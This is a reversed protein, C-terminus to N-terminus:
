DIGYLLDDDLPPLHLVGPSQCAGQYDDWAAALRGVLEEGCRGSVENVEWRDDPKAFLEAHTTSQGGSSNLRLHWAPTRIAREHPGAMMCARDRATPPEGDILPLLSRGTMASFEDFGWWDLLTPALDHPQALVQTRATAGRGDPFRVLWPVQVLEGYLADDGPGIRRHEGLPFGRAGLLILLTDNTRGCEGLADLLAGICVDLLTVQGAYAQVIGLLEDPDYDQPLLKGPVASWVPPPPDEVAAYRNRMELPADWPGGMGRSHIWSLGPPTDETALDIASAFLRALQTDEIDGATSPAASHEVTIRRDFAEALPHGALAADDTLLTTAAGRRTLMGPLSDGHSRLGDPSLAHLGSWLSRYLDDLKPTDILAQDLVLSQAALADIAPTGTWTNGYAGLQGSPLRDVVLVIASPDVM